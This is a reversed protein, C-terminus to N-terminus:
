IMFKFDINRINSKQPPSSDLIRAGRRVAGCIRRAACGEAAGSRLEAVFGFKQISTSYCVFWIELRRHFFLNSEQVHVAIVGCM